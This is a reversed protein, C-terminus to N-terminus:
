STSCSSTPGNRSRAAAAGGRRVDATVVRYGRPTLVADLLRRNPAQDDVVLVVGEDREDTM